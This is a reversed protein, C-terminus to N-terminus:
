NLLKIRLTSIGTEEINNRQNKRYFVLVSKEFLLVFKMDCDVSSQLAISQINAIIDRKKGCLFPITELTSAEQLKLFDVPLSELKKLHIASSCLNQLLPM